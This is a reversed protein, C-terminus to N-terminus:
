AVQQTAAAFAAFTHDLEEADPPTDLIITRYGAGFYTALEEGVQDYSGVLYPCMAKYNEFPALWYVSADDLTAPSLSSSLQKHWVSDSVKEALKRTLQGKRDDPFRAHAIDWADSERQRAIIGVRIGLRLDRDPATEEGSPKPYKIATANLAKASAVGAESSGSVFVDPLLPEPLPPALKLKKVSYFEGEYTVPAASALLRMIITTYETLRDYRKDHPTSDNLAELDNKFGGAVMNLYLRRGHLYALTTIQKAIWYPHMYIPQIAVLPCLTKTRQIILQSLSWPDLRANDSFVLMGKCGAEDSWRAVDILRDVYQNSTLDNSLPCTTFVEISSDHEM